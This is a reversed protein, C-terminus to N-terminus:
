ERSFRHYDFKIRSSLIREVMTRVLDTAKEMAELRRKYGCSRKNVDKTIGQLRDIAGTVKALDQQTELEHNNSDKRHNNNKRRFFVKYLRFPSM